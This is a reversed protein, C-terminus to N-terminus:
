RSMGYPTLKLEWSDGSKLEHLSIQPYKAWQGGEDRTAERAM